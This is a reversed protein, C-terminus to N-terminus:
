GAFSYLLIGAALLTGLIALLWGARVLEAGHPNLAGARLERRDTCAAMWTMAGVTLALAPWFPHRLGGLALLISLLGGVLLLAGRHPPLPRRFVEPADLVDDAGPVPGAPSSDRPAVFTHKCEACQVLLGACGAPAHLRRQCFPCTIEAM